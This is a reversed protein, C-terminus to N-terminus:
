DEFGHQPVIENGLHWKGIYGIKYGDEPSVHEAISPIDERLPANNEISQHNHPYLGTMISARSPTCVPQTVYANKFVTSESALQNMNPVKIKSNGYAALTDSRQQDTFVFLLNPKKKM